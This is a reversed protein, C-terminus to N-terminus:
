LFCLLPGCHFSLLNISIENSPSQFFSILFFRYILIIEAVDDLVFCMLLLGFVINQEIVVFLFSFMSCLVYFMYLYLHFVVNLTNHKTVLITFHDMPFVCYIFTPTMNKFQKFYILFKKRM